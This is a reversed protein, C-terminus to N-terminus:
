SGEGGGRILRLTFSIVFMLGGIVVSAIVMLELWFFAPRVHEGIAHWTLCTALVSFSLAPGFPLSNDRKVIWLVIGFLLAPFVSLFFAVVIIQWGLFSGAMMMLDADGMGLAEKGLGKGFLFAVARVLFTGVLAGCVGTALGTQWNGGAGAWAPLPGWFPWSYIGHLLGNNPMQWSAMEGAGLVPPGATSIDHPWPWPLFVSGVLGILTGAMTLSLPIERTHLDCVSAVMLFSFLLAHWGFGVWSQWPYVHLNVAWTDVRPWRHVNAIVELWFLGVFGLATTLEVFFYGISYSAGCTRCRGRLWLYSLLPINDYWHIAQLCRGCRSSPWLLSKELPMRIIAVNLFSGVCAGVTFVFLLTALLVMFWAWLSSGTQRIIYM